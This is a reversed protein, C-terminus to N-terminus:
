GGYPNQWVALHPGWARVYSGWADDRGGATSFQELDGWSLACLSWYLFSMRSPGCIPSPVYAPEFRVGRAALADIHPTKLHPHGACGLYDLWLQDCMIFLINKSM